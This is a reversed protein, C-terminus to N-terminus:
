AVRLWNLTRASCRNTGNSASWRIEVAQSGNVTVKGNIAVAGRGALQSLAGGDFPQVKRLSDAKQVGGVFISVSTVAGATSSNIDTSFWVLYSGAVPTFTMGSMLADSGTGATIQNTASVEGDTLNYTSEEIAAQVDTAAFGNSSNDFPISKAVQSIYDKM